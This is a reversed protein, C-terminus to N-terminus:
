CPQNYISHIETPKYILNYVMMKESEHTFAKTAGGGLFVTMILLLIPTKFIRNM